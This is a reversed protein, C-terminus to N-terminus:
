LKSKLQWHDGARYTKLLKTTLDDVVNWRDIYSHSMTADWLISHFKNSVNYKKSGARKGWNVIDSAYLAWDSPNYYHFWQEIGNGSLMQKATEYYQESDVDAAFTAICMQNFLHVEYNQDTLQDKLFQKMAEILILNGMSHAVIDIHTFQNSARNEKIQQIFKIFYPVCKLATEKDTNYGLIHNVSQWDFAVTVVKKTGIGMDIFDLRDSVDKSSNNFGHLFVILHDDKQIKNEEKWKKANQVMKKAHETIKQELKEPNDLHDDNKIELAPNQKPYVRMTAAMLGGILLAGRFIWLM